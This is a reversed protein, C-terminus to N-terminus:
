DYVGTTGDSHEDSLMAVYRLRIEESFCQTALGAEVIRELVREKRM